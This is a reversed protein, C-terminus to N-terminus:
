LILGEKFKNVNYTQNLNHKIEIGAHIKLKGRRLDLYQLSFSIGDTGQCKKLIEFNSPFLNYPCYPLFLPMKGFTKPM